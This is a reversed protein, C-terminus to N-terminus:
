DFLIKMMNTFRSNYEDNYERFTKDSIPKSFCDEFLCGILACSLGFGIAIMWMIESDEKFSVDYGIKILIILLIIGLSHVIKWELIPTAIFNIVAFYLGISSIGGILVFSIIREILDSELFIKKLM